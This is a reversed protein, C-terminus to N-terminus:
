SAALAEETQQASNEILKITGPFSGTLNDAWERFNLSLAELFAHNLNIQPKKVLGSWDAHAESLNLLRNLLKDDYIGYLSLFLHKHLTKKFRSNRFKAQIFASLVLNLALFNQKFNNERPMFSDLSKKSHDLHYFFTLDLLSLWFPAKAYTDINFRGQKGCFNFYDFDRLSHHLAILFDLYVLKDRKGKLDEELFRNALGINDKIKFIFEESKGYFGKNIYFALNWRWFNNLLSFLDDKKLHVTVARPEYILNYGIKRLRNSIDVDEFNNGYSENYSGAKILAERRFLTNSGFLFPPNTKNKAGWHQQMHISRWADFVSFVNDEEVRGGAGATAPSHLNKVLCALWGKDPKCDSDLSAVFEFDTSQIATNRAAALGRNEPHGIIKVPYKKAIAITADTSGDDVVLIQEPLREQHLVAELCAQITQASNFCPIYLAIKM